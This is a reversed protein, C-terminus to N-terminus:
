QPGKGFAQKQRSLSDILLLVRRRHFYWWNGHRYKTKKLSSRHYIVGIKMFRQYLHPKPRCRAVQEYCIFSPCNYLPTNCPVMLKARPHRRQLYMNATIFVSLTSWHHHHIVFTSGDGLFLLTCLGSYKRYYDTWFIM